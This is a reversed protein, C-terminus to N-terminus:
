AFWGFTGGCLWTSRFGGQRLIEAGKASRGGGKGCATIFFLDKDLRSFAQELEDVPINVAEPIHKEAFEDPSRVDIIQIRNSVLMNEKLEDLSICDQAAFEKKM